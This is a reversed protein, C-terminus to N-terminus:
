RLWRNSRGVVRGHQEFLADVRHMDCAIVRRCLKYLPQAPRDVVGLARGLPARKRAMASRTCRIIAWCHTSTFAVLGALARRAVEDPGAWGLFRTFIRM